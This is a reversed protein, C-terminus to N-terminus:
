KKELAAKERLLRQVVARLLYFESDNTTLGALMRELRPLDAVTATNVLAAIGERRFAADTKPAAELADVIAKGASPDGIRGLARVAVVRLRENNEDRETLIKSLPEVASKGGCYGLSEIIYPRLTEPLPGALAEELLPGAAKNRVNQLAMAAAAKKGDDGGQVLNVLEQVGSVEGVLALGTYAAARIEESEGERAAKLLDPVVAPDKTQGLAMVLTERLRPDQGEDNALRGIEELAEPNHVLSISQVIMPHSATGATTRLMDVLTRASEATGLTGLARAASSFLIGGPKAAKLIETAAEHVGPGGILASAQLAASRTNDDGATKALELFRALAAPDKLYKALAAARNRLEGDKMADLLLQTVAPDSSGGASLLREVELWNGKKAFFLIDETSAGGEPGHPEREDEDDIFVHGVGPVPVIPPVGQVAAPLPNEPADPPGALGPGTVPGTRLLLWGAAGAGLVALLGLAAVLSKPTAM